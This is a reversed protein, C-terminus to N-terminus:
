ATPGLKGAPTHDPSAAGTERYVIYLGSAILIASGIWVNWGPVDKWIIWGFIVGWVLVSYDFPALVAAPAHRYGQTILSMGLTGILGMLVFVGFDPPGPMQWQAPMLIGTAAVAIVSPWFMIATTAMHRTMKRGLLMSIAYGLAAGLPLLTEFRFNAPDPHAVFLVGVFGVIVATWRRPGVREGLIPVSLATIFLPAAFAVAFADALPMYRLATFFLFAAALNTISRILLLGPMRPRLHALGARSTLVYILIALAGIGHRMLVIQSIAYGSGLFKACADMVAMGFMGIMALAIGTGIRDVGEQDAQAQTM